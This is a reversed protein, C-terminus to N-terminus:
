VTNGAADKWTATVGSVSNVWIPKNITTDYYYRGVWLYKTPRNATTGSLTLMLLLQYANSFFNQWATTTRVKALIFPLPMKEQTQATRMDLFENTPPQGILDSM